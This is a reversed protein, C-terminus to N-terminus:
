GPIDDPGTADPISLCSRNASLYYQDFPFGYFLLEEKHRGKTQAPSTTSASSM